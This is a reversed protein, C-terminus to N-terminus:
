TMVIGTGIALALWGFPVVLGSVPLSLGFASLLATLGKALGLGLAAGAVSGAVAILAAEAIVSRFVQAASAGLARTLALERTRQGVLISFTNWIVFAAVFLSIGAFGLFFGTLISLASNIQQEASAAASAATVAQVGAPLVAAIRDRLQAASLGPVAKVAIRDYQGAKGFLQQAAPLSFIAMSGGAITDASGYGTIGTITFTLAHGDIAIGIAQGVAYHGRRASARDIMVQGPGAPPQGARGAFTAQFPTDAPWSLAVGFSGPLPKGDRGLLVAQGTVQGDATAVGPVSRVTALVSAPLPRVPSGTIASGGPSVHTVQVDTGTSAQTFLTDLSHTLTAGFAFSGAMFAVGLAIALGTLVLRLRHGLLSRFLAGIFMRRMM